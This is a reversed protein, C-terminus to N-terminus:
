QLTKLNIRLTYALWILARLEDVLWTMMIFVSRLLEEKQVVWSYSNLMALNKKLTPTSQIFGLIISKGNWFKKDATWSLKSGRDRAGTWLCSRSWVVKSSASWHRDTPGWKSVPWFIKMLQQYILTQYRFLIEKECGCLRKLKLGRQHLQHLQIGELFPEPILNWLYSTEQPLSPTVFASPNLLNIMIYIASTRM